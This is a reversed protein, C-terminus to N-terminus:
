IHILSLVCVCVCVCVCWLCEAWVGEKAAAPGEGEGWRVRGGYIREQRDACRADQEWEHSGDRASEVEEERRHHGEEQSKRAGHRLRASEAGIAQASASGGGDPTAHAMISPPHSHAWIIVLEDVRKGVFPFLILSFHM